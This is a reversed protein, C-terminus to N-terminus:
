FGWTQKRAKLWEQGAAPDDTQGLAAALARNRLAVLDAPWTSPDWWDPRVEGPAPPPPAEGM